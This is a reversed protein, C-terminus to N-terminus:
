SGPWRNRPRQDSGTGAVIRCVAGDRIRSYLRGDLRELEGATLNSTIVTTLEEGYRHNLIGLLTAWGWASAHQAGLDDLILVEITRARHLLEEYTLQDEIAGAAAGREGRDFTARMEDLLDGATKFWVARRQEVLCRAIISALMTKGLGVPGCLALWSPGRGEVLALAAELM